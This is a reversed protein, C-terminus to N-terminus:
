VLLLPLKSQAQVSWVNTYIYLCNVNNLGKPSMSGDGGLELQGISTWIPWNVLQPRQWNAALIDSEGNWAPLSGYSAGSTQGGDKM